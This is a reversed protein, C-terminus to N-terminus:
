PSWKYGRSSQWPVGEKNISLTAKGKICNKIKVQTFKKIAQECPTLSEQKKKNTGHIPYVLWM